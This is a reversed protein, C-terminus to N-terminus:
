ENGAFTQYLLFANLVLIIGAVTWATIRLWPRNVFVGMKLKDNTFLVLPVVAFSLQLRCFLRASCWCRRRHRKRRLHAGRYLGAGRGAPAHCAAAALAAPTIHLFGEMVIQGALTGTLTSNQGSALLAVAFVVSAAGAGLM